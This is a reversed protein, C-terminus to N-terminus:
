QAVRMFRALRLVTNSSYIAAASITFRSSRKLERFLNEASSRLNRVAESVSLALGRSPEEAEDDDDGGLDNRIQKALKEVSALKVKEKETLRGNTALATELEAAIRVAQEGREIMRDFEKKEKEIRMKELSDRISKPHEDQAADLSRNIPLNDAGVQSYCSAAGAFLAAIILLAKASARFMTEIIPQRIKSPIQRLV